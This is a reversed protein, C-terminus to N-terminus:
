NSSPPVDHYEEETHEECDEEEEYDYDEDEFDIRGGKQYKLDTGNLKAKEQRGKGKGRSKTNKSTGAVSKLNAIAAAVGNAAANPNTSPPKTTVDGEKENVPSSSRIFAAVATSGSKRKQGKLSAADETAKRALHAIDGEIELKMSALRCELSELETKRVYVEELLDNYAAVKRQQEKPADVPADIREDIVPIIPSPSYSYTTGISM